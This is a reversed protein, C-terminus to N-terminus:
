LNSLCSKKMSNGVIGLRHVPFLVSFEMAVPITLPALKLHGFKEPWLKFYCLHRSLM